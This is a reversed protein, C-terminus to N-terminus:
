IMGMLISLPNKNVISHKQHNKKLLFYNLMISMDTTVIGQYVLLYSFLFLFHIHRIIKNKSKFISKIRNQDM